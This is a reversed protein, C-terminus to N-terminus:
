TDESARIASAFVAADLTVNVWAKSRQGREEIALGVLALDGALSRLREQEPTEGRTEDLEDRSWAASAADALEVPIRVAIRPMDVLLSKGLTALVAADRQYRDYQGLEPM